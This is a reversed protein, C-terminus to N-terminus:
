SVVSHMTYTAPQETGNTGHQRGPEHVAAPQDEFMALITGEQWRFRGAQDYSLNEGCGRADSTGVLDGADDYAYRWYNAGTADTTNPELNAVVRGFSDYQMWRSVIDGSTNHTQQVQVTDGSSTYRYRLQLDDTGVHTHTTAVRGHGNRDISSLFGGESTRDILCSPKTPWRDASATGDLAYSTIPRFYEDFATKQVVTSTAGILASIAYALAASTAQRIRLETRITTSRAIGASCGTM